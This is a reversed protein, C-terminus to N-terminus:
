DALLDFVRSPNLNAQAAFAETPSRAIQSQLKQFVGAAANADAITITSSAVNSAVHNENHLDVPDTPVNDPRSPTKTSKSTPLELDTAHLLSPNIRM